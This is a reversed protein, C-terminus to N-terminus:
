WTERVPICRRCRGKVVDEYEELDNNKERDWSSWGTRRHTHRVQVGFKPHLQKVAAASSVKRANVQAMLGARRFLM